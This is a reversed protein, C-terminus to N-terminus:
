CKIKRHSNSYYTCTGLIWIYLRTRDLIHMVEPSAFLIGNCPPSKLNGVLFRKKTKFFAAARHHNSSFCTRGYFNYIKNLSKSFSSFQTKGANEQREPCMFFVQSMIVNSDWFMWRFSDRSFDPPARPEPALSRKRCAWSQLGEAAVSDPALPSHTASCADIIGNPDHM